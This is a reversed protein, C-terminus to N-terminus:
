TVRARTVLMSCLLPTGVSMCSYRWSSCRLDLYMHLIVHNIEDLVWGGRLGVSFQESMTISLTDM